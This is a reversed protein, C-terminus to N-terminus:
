SAKEFFARIAAFVTSAKDLTGTPFAEPKARALERRILKAASEKNFPIELEEFAREVRKVLTGGEELKVDAASKGKAKLKAGHSDTAKKLYYAEPFLDEIEVNGKEGLADGLLLTGSKTDKYHTLWKTRLTTEERRGAEDSDFLSLTVLDQGIMFTALHVVESAGGGASILVEEPLGEDGKRILGNSLESLLWYDDIGEVVLNLQSVLYSQNAKMGLASQLTLKEEKQSAGLNDTVSAADNKQMIVKIRSPERLDVLFPLHTTYVTVNKVSYADLRKLLDEQGGPHLHLGPEDLLLVCGEFTGGSEHMFHLDFSFFWQFGKSQEDLPIMGIAKNTEEINTFFTQGDVRFEVRYENQNWRGAVLNTLTRGADDLDQQRDDIVNKDSSKGQRIVEDLDLGSLKLIMLFTEDAETLQAPTKRKVEELDALGSFSKYDDMYIFKPIRSVLYEHAKDHITGAGKLESAITALASGHNAAFTNEAVREPANDASYAAVLKAKNTSALNALDTYRGEAALRRAEDVCERAATAFGSGLDSPPEALRAVSKEVTSPHVMAPFLDPVDASTIEFNGDYNKTITVTKPVPKAVLQALEASESDDLEFRVECVIQKGDRATRQGRPWERRMDYPKPSFPNFKHLAKLLATKGSQNKGVVCTLNDLLEVEGSDEINRYKRIRFSKIKM